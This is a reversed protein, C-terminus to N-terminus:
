GGEEEDSEPDMVFVYLHGDGPQKELGRLDVGQDRDGVVEGGHGCTGM